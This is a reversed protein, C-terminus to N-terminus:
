FPYPHLSSTILTLAASITVIIGEGLGFGAVISTKYREWWDRGLYKKLVLATFGGLFTSISYPLPQSAGVAIGIISFPIRFFNLVYHLAVVLLCAMVVNNINFITAPKKIWLVQSTAVIPWQTAVFPYSPSPIPSMQWFVSVFIFSMIYALPFAILYSLIYSRFTTKLMKAAKFGGAWGSGSESIVLPSFWIDVGKYGSFTITLIQAYSFGSLPDRLTITYGTEGLAMSSILTIIFTWGISLMFLLLINFEPVLLHTLVVSASTGTLFSILPILIQRSALSRISVSTKRNRKVLIRTYNIAMVIISALIIGVIYSVWYKFSLQYAYGLNTGPTWEKFIGQKVLLHNGFMYFVLGGIFMSISVELPVLFGITIAILDTALGLSAGPLTREISTSWDIWPSPIIHVNAVLPLGYLILGYLMGFSTALIFIKERQPERETLDLCTQAWVEQIPFPLREIEVFLKYNLYGLALDALKTFVGSTILTILIPLLWEGHLFTRLGEINPAYWSPIKDSLGYSKAVYSHKFFYNYLLSVAITELIITGTSAFMIFAEQKSLSRGSLVFIESFLLIVTYEAALTLSVGSYLYLWIAAPQLVLAAYLIGLLARPTLGSRYEERDGM